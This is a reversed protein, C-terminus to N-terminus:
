SKRKRELMATVEQYMKAPIRKYEGDKVGKSKLWDKLKDQDVKDGLEDLLGALDALQSDDIPADDAPNSADVADHEVIELAAMWLYRRMYTQVAGLNQIPHAAKLNATSMPSTIVISGDGEISHVTMTAYSEDFSIIPVLGSEKMCEMGPMIFDGLEFYKYGAFKNEGSKKLDLKHFNERADALRSYISKVNSETM